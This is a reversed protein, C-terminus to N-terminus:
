ETIIDAIDLGLSMTLSVIETVLMVLVVMLHEHNRRVFFLALGIILIAALISGVLVWTTDFGKAITLTGELLTCRKRMREVEDWAEDLIVEYPYLGPERRLGSPIEWHFRNSGAVTRQLYFSTNAWLVFAKPNSFNIPLSDVDVLQAEFRVSETSADVQGTSAVLAAMSRSQKCSVLAEVRTQLTVESRLRSGQSVLQVVTTIVDGDAACSQTDSPRKECQLRVTFEHLSADSFKLKRKDLMARWTAAPPAKRWEIHQGFATIAPSDIRLSGNVGIREGSSADLRTMTVNFDVVLEMEGRAEVLMRLTTLGGPKRLTIAVSEGELAARLSTDQECQQGDDAFGPQTRLGDGKCQCDVGGSPRPICAARPDCMAPLGAVPAGCNPPMITL